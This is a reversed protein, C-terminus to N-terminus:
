AYREYFWFHSGAAAVVTNFTWSYASAGPDILPWTTDGAFAILDMRTVEVSGEEVTLLKDEGKFRITRSGTSAPVTITFTSDGVAGVITGAASGVIILANVPRHQFQGRALPQCAIIKQGQDLGRAHGLGM